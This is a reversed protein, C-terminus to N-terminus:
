MISCKLNAQDPQFSKNFLDNQYYYEIADEISDFEAKTDSSGIQIEFRGNKNPRGFIRIHQIGLINLWFNPQHDCSKFLFSMTEKNVNLYFQVEAINNFKGVFELNLHPPWFDDKVKLCWLNQLYSPMQDLQKQKFLAFKAHLIEIRKCAKLICELFNENQEIEKGIKLIMLNGLMGILQMSLIVEKNTQLSLSTAGDLLCVLTPNENFHKLLNENLALLSFDALKSVLDLMKVLDDAGMMKWNIFIEIHRTEHRSKLNILSQLLVCYDGQRGLGKKCQIKKLSPLYVKREILALVFDNLDFAHRFQITTLSERLKRYLILLLTNRHSANEIYLHRVSISTEDTLRPLSKYGLGLAELRPCHLEFTTNDGDLLRFIVNKLNRLSLKGNEVLFFNVELHVLDKFYNSLHNLDIKLAARFIRHGHITLKLLGSFKNLFRISKLIGIKSVRFTNAYSILEGTHFLYREIWHTRVFLHLSRPTRRDIINKLRKCTVRLNQLDEHSLRESILLIVLEPLEIM